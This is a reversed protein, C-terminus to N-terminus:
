AVIVVEISKEVFIKWLSSLKGGFNSIALKPSQWDGFHFCEAEIVRSRRFDVICERQGKKCPRRRTPM